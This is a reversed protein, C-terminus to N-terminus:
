VFEKSDYDSIMKDRANRKAKKQPLAELMDEDRPESTCVEEEVVIEFCGAYKDAIIRAFTADKGDIKEGAMVKKFGMEELIIPNKGLPRSGLCKLFVKTM